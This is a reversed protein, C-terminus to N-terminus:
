PNTGSCAWGLLRVQLPSEHSTLNLVILGAAPMFPGFVPLRTHKVVYQAVADHRNCMSAHRRGNAPSTYRGIQRASGQVCIPFFAPFYAREARVYDGPHAALTTRIVIQQRASCGEYQPALHTNKPRDSQTGVGLSSQEAFQTK